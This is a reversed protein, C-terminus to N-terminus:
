PLPDFMSQRMQQGAPSDSYDLYDVTWIGVGRIDMDAALKYKMTLSLPDDYQIQYIKSTTSNQFSFFPTVSTANWRYNEPMTMLLNYAAEYTIYNGGNGFLGFHGFREGDKNLLCKDQVLKICEYIKGYWPLGLVLKSNAISVVPDHLFGDIGQKTMMYDSNPGAVYPGSVADKEDYAMIFLFDSVEALNHFGYDYSSSYPTFIVDVSVQSYPLVSKLAINTENVLDIYAERLAVEKTTITGEYDFNIGDLFNDKMIKLQNDVWQKRASPSMITAEDIVGLVVARVNHSHALCMLSYNLYKFMCITTIKTWDFKQWHNEDNVVSFAYVEKKTVDTIPNCWEPKECPCSSSTHLNSEFILAKDEVSAGVTMVTMLLGLSVFLCSTKCVTWQM